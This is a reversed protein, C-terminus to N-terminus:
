CNLQLYWYGFDGKKPERRKISKFCDFGFMRAMFQEKQQFLGPVGLIYVERDKYKMKALILHHYCYYGHLLFSNSSLAWYEKPLLGIDKPEIKVCILIENDEFPYLRNFRDMIGEFCPSKDDAAKAQGANAMKLKNDAGMNLETNDKAAPGSIDTKSEKVLKIGAEEQQRDSTKDTRGDKDSAYIKDAEAISRRFMEVTKLGRPFKYAPIKLEEELSLKEEFYHERDKSETNDGETMGSKNGDFKEASREEKGETSKPMEGTRNENQRSEQLAKRNGTDERAEEDMIRKHIRGDAGEKYLKEAEDQPKDAAPKDTLRFDRSIDAEEPEYADNQDRKDKAENIKEVTFDKKIDPETKPKDPRKAAVKHENQKRGAKVRHNDAKMAWLLEEPKILYDDWFTAFYINDNMFILIGSMDKLSYGSDMINAEDAAFRSDMMHDKLLSDGLYILDLGSSNKCIMYTPFISDSQGPLQMHIIFKCQGNKIEIRVYGANKRKVGNEYEYMYSIMRKYNTM